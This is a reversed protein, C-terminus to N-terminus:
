SICRQCKGAAGSVIAMTLQSLISPLMSVGSRTPGVGKVAQFYIPMYNSAVLVCSMLTCAQGCSAWVMRRRLISWPIMARDGMRAEWAAFIIATVGVGCFLGIVTASNWPYEEGGGFQLALLFMVSAPAFFAFGILDLEPLLSRILGFSFPKKATLDPIEVLLLLLIALGGLPLNIYFGICINLILLQSRLSGYRNYISPGVYVMEM